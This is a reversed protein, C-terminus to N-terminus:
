YDICLMSDLLWYFFMFYLFACRKGFQNQPHTHTKYKNQICYTSMGMKLTLFVDVAMNQRKLTATSTKQM